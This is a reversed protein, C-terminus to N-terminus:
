MGTRQYNSNQVQVQLKKAAVNLMETAAYNTGDPLTQFGVQLTVADQPGDLYTNISISSLVKAAENFNLSMSDGQKLYNQLQLGIVGPGAERVSANGSQFAQQMADPSPPVYDKILAVARQMYDELEDTKREVVRGRVGRKQPQQQPPPGIPTKQVQGDPGYRCSDQTTKKVEGNLSIQTQSTWSYQRLAAKNQALSQRVAALKQQIEPNGQASLTLAAGLVLVPVFGWRKM